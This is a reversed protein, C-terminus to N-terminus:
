WSRPHIFLWQQCWMQTDVWSISHPQSGSIMSIPRGFLCLSMNLVNCTCCIIGMYSFIVSSMLRFEWCALTWDKTMLYLMCLSRRFRYLHLTCLSQLHGPPATLPKQPSHIQECVQPILLSPDISFLVHLEYSHCLTVYSDLPIVCMGCHCWLVSIFYMWHTDQMLYHSRAHPKLLLHLGVVWGIVFHAHMSFIKGWM